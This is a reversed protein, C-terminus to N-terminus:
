IVYGKIIDENQTNDIILDINNNVQKQYRIKLYDNVRSSSASFIVYDVNDYLSPNFISNVTLLIHTYKPKTINMVSHHLDLLKILESHSFENPKDLNICLADEPCLSLVKNRIIDNKDDIILISFTKKELPFQDGWRFIDVNNM